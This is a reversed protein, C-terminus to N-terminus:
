VLDFKDIKTALRTLHQGLLYSNMRRSHKSQAYSYSFYSDKCIKDQWTFSLLSNILIHAFWAISWLILIILNFIQLITRNHFRGLDKYWWFSVCTWVIEAVLILDIARILNGSPLKSQWTASITSVHKPSNGSITSIKNRFIFILNM